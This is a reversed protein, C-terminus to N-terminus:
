LEKGLKASYGLTSCVVDAEGGMESWRDGCVSHWEGNYCIQIRGEKVNHGGVLHVTGEMCTTDLITDFNASKIDTQRDTVCKKIYNHYEGTCIVGAEDTGSKCNHVGVRPHMCEVLRTENGTCAVNDLHFNIMNLRGGFERLAYSATLTIYSFHLFCEMLINFSTPITTGFILILGLSAWLLVVCHLEGM